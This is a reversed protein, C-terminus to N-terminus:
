DAESYPVMRRLQLLCDGRNCRSNSISAQTDYTDQWYIPLYVKRTSENMVVQRITLNAGVVNVFRKSEDRQQLPAMGRFTRGSEM